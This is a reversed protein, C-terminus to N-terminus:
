VIEGLKGEYVLRADGSMRPDAPLEGDAPTFDIVLPFGGTTEVTVPPDTLGWLHTLIAAATSGTGCSLTEDEVGREYTRLRVRDKSRVAIFNVNTGPPDWRPDHRLRKGEPVVDHSEISEVSDLLAVVHPTATDLFGVRRYPPRELDPLDLELRRPPILWLTVESREPDVVQARFSGSGTTFEMMSRDVVGVLRAYRAICLAGNGCMPAEGGDANFYVMRFDRAEDDELLLVADAGVGLGRRCLRTVVERAADRPFWRERNDFLVFDNGGGTMKVFSRGRLSIV